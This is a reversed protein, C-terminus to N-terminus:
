FGDARATLLLLRDVRNSLKWYQFCGVDDIACVECSEQHRRVENEAVRCIIEDRVLMDADAALGAAILRVVRVRLRALEGSPGFMELAPELIHDALEDAPTRTYTTM